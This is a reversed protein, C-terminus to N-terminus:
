QFIHQGVLFHHGRILALDVNDAVQLPHAVVGGIDGFLHDIHHFSFVDAVAALTSARCPLDPRDGLIDPETLLEKYGKVFELLM